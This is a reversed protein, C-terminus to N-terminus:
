FHDYQSQHGVRHDGLQEVVGSPLEHEPIRHQQAVQDDRRAARRQGEGEELDTGDKLEM